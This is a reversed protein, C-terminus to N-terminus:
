SGTRDGYLAARYVDRVRMAVQVPRFRAEAVARAAAGFAAREDDNALLRGIMRALNEVDGVEVLLGTVGDDVLSAVGGVDTAVVPLGGAMAEGIVM